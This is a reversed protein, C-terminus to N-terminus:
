HDLSHAQPINCSLEPVNQHTDIRTFLCFFDPPHLISFPAYFKLTCYTNLRFTPSQRIRSNSSLFMQEWIPPLTATFILSTLLFKIQILYFFSFQLIILGFLKRFKVKIINWLKKINRRDQCQTSQM